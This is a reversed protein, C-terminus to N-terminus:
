YALHASISLALQPQPHNAKTKKSETCQHSLHFWRNADLCILKALGIKKGDLCKLSYQHSREPASKRPSICLWQQKGSQCFSLPSFSLLSSWRCPSLNFWVLAITLTYSLCHWADRLQSILFSCIPIFIDTSFCLSSAGPFPSAAM